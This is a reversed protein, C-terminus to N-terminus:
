LDPPKPAAAPPKVQAPVSNTTGDRYPKGVRYLELRMRFDKREVPRMLQIAKEQYKVANTYDSKEAYAAALTDVFDARSWKTEECARWANSVAAQGNRLADFPCSAQLWALNNYRGPSDMPQLSARVYADYAEERRGAMLLAYAFGEYAPLRSPSLLEQYDELAKEYQGSLARADGRSLFAPVFTADIGLARTYDEIAKGYEEMDFWAAGRSMYALVDEPELELAKEFDAMAKPYDYKETLLSGRERYFESAEPALEISKSLDAIAKDYEFLESWFQARYVYVRPESPELEVLRNFDTVAKQWEKKEGWAAGREAYAELNAPDLEIAITYQEIAQDVQGRERLRNGQAVYLEPSAKAAVRNLIARARMRIEPDQSDAAARLLPLATRWRVELEKEAVERTKHSESGLQSILVPIDNTPSAARASGAAPSPSRCGPSLALLCGALLSLLAADTRNPNM